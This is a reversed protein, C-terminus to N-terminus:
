DRCCMALVQQAADIRTCVGAQLQRTVEGEDGLMVKQEFLARAAERGAPEGGYAIAARVAKSVEAHLPPPQEISALRYNSNGRSYRAWLSDSSCCPYHLICADISPMHRVVQALPGRGQWPERMNSFWAGLGEPTGPLWEHVSLPKANPHVRVAAKGNDYYYFFSGEQRAQWADLAVQADASPEITELCRKFLTVDRFANTIGDREPVAEHNMYCFTSVNLRSLEAFHACASNRDTGATGPYFLEDGDIHLLWDLGREVALRM